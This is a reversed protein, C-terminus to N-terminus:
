LCFNLYLIKLTQGQSPGVPDQENEFHPFQVGIIYMEEEIKINKSTHM